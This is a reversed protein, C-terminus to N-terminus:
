VDWGKQSPQAPSYLAKKRLTGKENPLLDTGFHRGISKYLQFLDPLGGSEMVQHNMVM